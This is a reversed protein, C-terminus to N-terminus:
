NTKRDTETQNIKLHLRNTKQRERETQGFHIDTQRDALIGTTRDTQRDGLIGTTRDTQRDALIRRETKRGIQM